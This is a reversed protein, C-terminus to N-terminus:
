VLRRYLDQLQEKLAPPLRNGFKEYYDAIADAEKRWGAADV